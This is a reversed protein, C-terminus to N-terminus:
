HTSSQLPFVRTQRNTIAHVYKTQNYFDTPWPVEGRDEKVFVTVPNSSFRVRVSRVKGLGTEKLDNIADSFETPSVM